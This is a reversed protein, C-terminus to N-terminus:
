GADLPECADPVEVCFPTTGPLRQRNAAVLEYVRDLLWPVGPIRWPWLPVRSRMAVAVALAIARAGGVVTGDAAVTWAARETQEPSLGLRDRVGHEQAAALTLL